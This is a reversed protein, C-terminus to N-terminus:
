KEMSLAQFHNDLSTRTTTITTGGDVSAIVAKSYSVMFSIGDPDCEIARAAGNGDPTNTLESWTLGGDISKWVNANSSNDIGYHIDGADSQCVFKMTPAGSVTSFTLGGDSSRILRQFVSSTNLVPCIVIGNVRSMSPNLIIENAAPIVKTWSDGGDESLWGGQTGNADNTMTGAIFMRMATADVCPVGWNREGTLGGITIESYNQASDESRYVRSRVSGIAVALSKTGDLSAQVYQWFLDAVPVTAKTWSTGNNTSYWIGRNTASTAVIVAAIVLVDGSTGAISNVQANPAINTLSTWSSGNNISRVVVGPVQIRGIYWYPVVLEYLGTTVDSDLLNEKVTIAKLTTTATLNVPTVFETDGSDPTSGDTTYHMAADPTTTTMDVDESVVFEGQVPDFVPAACKIFIEAAATDSDAYIEPSIIKARVQVIESVMIGTSANNSFDSDITPETGDFTFYVTGQPNNRNIVILQRDFFTGEEPSITPALAQINYQASFIASPAAPSNYARARLETNVVFFPIAEDYLTGNEPSPDTGDTTYYIDADEDNSILSIPDTTGRLYTGAPLDATVTIPVIAYDVTTVESPIYGDAYARARVRSTSTVYSPTEPQFLTGNQSTPISGDTTYYIRNGVTGSEMELRVFGAYTGGVPLITPKEAQLTPVDAPCQQQKAIFSGQVAVGTLGNTTEFMRVPTRSWSFDRYQIEAVYNRLIFGLQHAIGDMQNRYETILDRGTQMDSQIVDENLSTQRLLYFAFNVRVGVENVSDVKVRNELLFLLPFDNCINIQSHDGQEFYLTGLQGEYAEAVEKILTFPYTDFYSM